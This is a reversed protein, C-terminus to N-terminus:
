TITINTLYYANVWSTLQLLLVKQEVPMFQAISNVWLQLLSIGKISLPVFLTNPSTM